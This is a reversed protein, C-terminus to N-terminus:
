LKKNISNIEQNLEDVENKLENYQPHVKDWIKLYKDRIREKFVAPMFIDSEKRWLAILTAVVISLFTYSAAKNNEVNIGCYALLDFNCYVGIINIVGCLFLLGCISLVVYIGKYYKYSVSKNREQELHELQKCKEKKQELLSDKKRYLEVLIENKENAIKLEKNEQIVASQKIQQKSLEQQLETQKEKMKKQMSEQEASKMVFEDIRAKYLIQEKKHTIFRQKGEETIKRIVDINKQNQKNKENESIEDISEILKKDRQFLGLIIGKYTEPDFNMTSDNYYRSVIELKGRVSKNNLMLCRALTEVLLNNKITSTSSKANHMWLEIVIKGPHILNYKGCLSNIRCFSILETNLTVFYCLDNAKEKRRKGIYDNMFIDHVDRFPDDIATRQQKLKKVITKNRYDAVIKNLDSESSNPFVSLGLGEITKVLNCRIGALKASNLKYREYASEIDTNPRPRQESEVSLIINSVERLTMPHVRAVCGSSRIIELMEAAYEEHEITSLKLLSMVLSTDLFYEFRESNGVSIEPNERKLFGAIVSGWFLQNAVNFLDLDDDHLFKLFYVLISYKEDIKNTDEQEFYGLIDDTNDSIFDIFKLEDEVGEKRLYDQYKNELESMKEQFFRSRKDIEENISTDWTKQIQFYAGNEFIVLSVDQTKGLGQIIKKLVIKPIVLGFNQEIVCYVDDLDYYEKKYENQTFLIVIAYKVIPFYIDKYLGADERSYLAAILSFNSRNM